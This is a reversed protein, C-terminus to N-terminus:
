SDGETEDVIEGPAKVSLTVHTLKNGLTLATYSAEALWFSSWNATILYYVAVAFLIWQLVFFVWHERKKVSVDIAHLEPDM